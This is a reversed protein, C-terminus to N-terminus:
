SVIPRRRWVDSGLVADTPDATSRASGQPIPMPPEIPPGPTIPPVPPVLPDPHAPDLPSPPPDSM